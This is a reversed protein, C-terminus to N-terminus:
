KNKLSEFINLIGRVWVSFCAAHDVYYLLEDPTDDYHFGGEPRQTEVVFDCFEYAKEKAREDGTLMYYTAAALAGKGSGWYSFNDNYFRLYFEFLRKAYDLYSKNGTAQYMKCMLLM